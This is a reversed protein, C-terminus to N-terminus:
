DDKGRILHVPGSKKHVEGRIYGEAEIHYYYVGPPAASGGVNGDWGKAPDTSKYVVKGWGNIITIKYNKISRYVVRFEDNFNDGNPTFVNPAAILSEEVKIALDENMDTCGSISNAVELIITYPINTGNEDTNPESFVFFPDRENSFGSKGFTWSRSTINGKSEDTFRIEVPASASTLSDNHVENPVVAKMVEYKYAAKVAIVEYEFESRSKNGFKDDVTVEYKTNEYPVNEPSVTQLTDDVFPEGTSAKWKYKLKYDVTETKDNNPNCYTLVLYDNKASLELSYCDSNEVIAEVEYLEPWFAWCYYTGSFEGGSVVVRYGGAETISLINEQATVNEWNQNDYNYKSWSYGTAGTSNCVLEAPTDKFFFISDSSAEGDYVAFESLFSSPASIQASLSGLGYILLVISFILKYIRM